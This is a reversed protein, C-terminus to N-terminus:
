NVVNTPHFNLIYNCACGLLRTSSRGTTNIMSRPNVSASAVINATGGATLGSSSSSSGSGVPFSGPSTKKVPVMVSRCSVCVITSECMCSCIGSFLLFILFLFYSRQVASSWLFCCMGFPNFHPLQTACYLPFSQTPCKWVFHGQALCQIGFLELTRCTSAASQQQIKIKTLICHQLHACCNPTQLSAQSWLNLELYADMRLKANLRINDCCFQSETSGADSVSAQSLFDMIQKVKLEATSKRITRKSFCFCKILIKSAFSPTTM